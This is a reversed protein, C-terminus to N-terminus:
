LKKINKKLKVFGFPIGKQILKRTKPFSVDDSYRGIRLSNKLNIWTRDSLIYDGFKDKDRAWGGTMFDWGSGAGVRLICESEKCSEGIQKIVNLHDLYDELVIPNNEDEWFSIEKELIFLTHRNILKFLSKSNYVPFDLSTELQKSGLTANKLDDPISIFISARSGTPICEFYSSLQRKEDWGNRYENVVKSKKLETQTDFYADGIRLLRLLDKQPDVKYNTRRKPALYHAQINADGYNMRGRRERGLNKEQSVFAPNEKILFNLVATRISGKLSSGPITPLYPRGLFIQAKIKERSPIQGSVMIERSAVDESKVDPRRVILLDNLLDGNPKDILSVWQQINEEGIIDLIKRPDVVAVKGEQQFSIYETGPLLEDGSGIHVPTIAEILFIEKM